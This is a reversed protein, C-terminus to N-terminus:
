PKRRSGLVISVAGLLILICPILLVPKDIGTRVSKVTVGPARNHQTVTNTSVTLSDMRIVATNSIDTDFQPTVIVCRVTESAKAPISIQWTVTHGKLKGDHDYDFQDGFLGGMTAGGKMEM